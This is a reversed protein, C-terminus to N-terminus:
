KKLRKRVIRLIKKLLKINEKSFEKERKKAM